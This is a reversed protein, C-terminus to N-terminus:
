YLGGNLYNSIKDTTSQHVRRIVAKGDEYKVAVAIVGLDRLHRLFEDVEQFNDADMILDEGAVEDAAVHKITDLMPYLISEGLRRAREKIKEESEEMEYSQFGERIVRSFFFAKGLDFPFKFAYILEDDHAQSSTYKLPPLEMQPDKMVVGERGEEGLKKVMELIRSPAEQIPYVGLLTVSPLGYQELLDRKKQIPLPKGTLKERIDFIRFGLKGIEPYYHSVYPNDTGLMEGCIVLDPHDQFFQTLDMIKRAKKTTYPCVYGGRTFAVIEPDIFAIRVNYGNMKEEVAIEKSFHSKLANKLMLTRRIKPFGRIVHIERSICIMTGAEVKGVAKRFQLASILRNHYFKINGKKYALILKDLELDLIQPLEDKIFDELSIERIDGCSTCKFFFKNPTTKEQKLDMKKSCRPCNIAPKM